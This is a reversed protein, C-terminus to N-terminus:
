LEVMISSALSWVMRIPSYINKLVLGDITKGFQTKNIKLTPM